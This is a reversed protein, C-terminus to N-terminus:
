KDGQKQESEDDEKMYSANDGAAELDSALGKIYESLEGWTNCRTYAGRVCSRLEYALQEIKEIAPELDTIDEWGAWGDHDENKKSEFTDDDFSIGYDGADMGMDDVYESAKPTDLTDGGYWFIFEASGDGRVIQRMTKKRDRGYGKGEGAGLELWRGEIDEFSYGKKLIDGLAPVVLKDYDDKDMIKVFVPYKGENMDPIKGEMLKYKGFEKLGTAIAKKYRDDTGDKPVDVTKREGNLVVTIKEPDEASPGDELEIEIQYDKGDEGQAYFAESYEPHKNVNRGKLVEYAYYADKVTIPEDDSRTLYDCESTCDRKWDGGLGDDLEEKVIAKVYRGFIEKVKTDDLGAFGNYHHGNHNRTDIELVVEGNPMSVNAFKWYKAMQPTNKWIGDSWQGIVSDLIDQNKKGFLGTKIIRTDEAM